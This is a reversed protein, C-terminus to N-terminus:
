NVEFLLMNLAEFKVKPNHVQQQYKSLIYQAMIIHVLDRKAADVGVLLRLFRTEDVGELRLPSHQLKIYCEVVGWLYESEAPPPPSLM